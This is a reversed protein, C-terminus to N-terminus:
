LQKIIRLKEQESRTKERGKDIYTIEIYFEGDSGGLLSAEIQYGEHTWYTNVEHLGISIPYCPAASLLDEIIPDKTERIYNYNGYKHSLMRRVKKYKVICNWDNIGSPGFILYAKSIRKGQFVLQIETEMGLLDEQGYYIVQGWDLDGYYYSYGSIQPHDNYVKDWSVGLPDLSLLSIVLYLINWHIM